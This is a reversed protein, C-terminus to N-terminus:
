HDFFKDHRSGGGQVDTVGLFPVLAYHEQVSVEFRHEDPLIEYGIEVFLDAYYREVQGTVANRDHLALLM